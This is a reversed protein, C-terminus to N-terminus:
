TEGRDIWKDVLVPQYGALKDLLRMPEQEELV